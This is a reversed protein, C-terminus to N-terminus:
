FRFRFYSQIDTLRKTTYHDASQEHLMFAFEFQFCHLKARGAVSEHDFSILNTLWSTHVSNEQM